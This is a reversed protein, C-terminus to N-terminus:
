TGKSEWTEKRTQKWVLKNFARKYKCGKRFNRM